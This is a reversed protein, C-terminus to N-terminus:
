VEVGFIHVVSNQSEAKYFPYKGEPVEFYCDISYELFATVGSLFQVLYVANTPPSGSNTTDDGYGIRIQVNAGEGHYVIKTIIFKKGTPVQYYTGVPSQFTMYSGANQGAWLGKLGTTTDQAVSGIRFAITM